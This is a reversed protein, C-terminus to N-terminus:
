VVGARILRAAVKGAPRPTQQRWSMRMDVNTEKMKKRRREAARYRRVLIDFEAYAGWEVRRNLVVGDGGGDRMAAVEAARLEAGLRCVAARPVHLKLVDSTHNATIGTTTIATAASPLPVLLGRKACLRLLLPFPSKAYRCCNTDVLAATPLLLLVDAILTAVPPDVAFLLLLPLPLM